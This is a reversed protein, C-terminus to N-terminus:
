VYNIPSNDLARKREQEEANNWDYVMAHDVLNRVTGWDDIAHVAGSKRAMSDTLDQTAQAMERPGFEPGLRATSTFTASGPKLKSECFFGILEQSKTNINM